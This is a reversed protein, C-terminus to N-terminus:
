KGRGFVHGPIDNRTLGREALEADSLSMLYEMERAESFTEAVGTVFRVTAAFAQAISGLIGNGAPTHIHISAM